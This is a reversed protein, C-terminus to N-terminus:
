VFHFFVVYNGNNLSSYVKDDGSAGGGCATMAFIMVFILLVALIKKGKM